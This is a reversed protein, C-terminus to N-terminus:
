SRMKKPDSEDRPQNRSGQFQAPNHQQTFPRHTHLGPTSTTTNSQHSHPLQATTSSSHHNSPVQHQHHSPQHPHQNQPHQRPAPLLPGASTSHPRASNQPTSQQGTSSPTMTSTQHSSSRASPVPPPPPPPQSAHSSQSHSHSHNHSHNHRIVRAAKPHMLTYAPPAHPGPWTRRYEDELRHIRVHPAEPVLPSEEEFVPDHEFTHPQPTFPRPSELSSSM